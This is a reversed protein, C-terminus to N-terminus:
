AHSRFTIDLQGVRPACRRRAFARRGNCGFSDGLVIVPVCALTSCSSSAGRAYVASTM